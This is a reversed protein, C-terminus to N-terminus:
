YSSFVDILGPYFSTTMTVFFDIIAMSMAVMIFATSFEDLTFGFHNLLAVFDFVTYFRYTARTFFAM